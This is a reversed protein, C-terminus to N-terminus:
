SLMAKKCKEIFLELSRPSNQASSHYYIDGYTTRPGSYFSGCKSKAHELPVDLQKCEEPSLGIVERPWLLNVSYGLEEAKYTIEEATDSRPNLHDFSPKGLNNYLEKSLFLLHPGAYPHNKDSNNHSNKHNSQWAGGLVTKHDSVKQYLEGIFDRRLPISDTEMFLWYDVGDKFRDVIIDLAGGHSIGPFPCEVYNMPIDFHKFIKRNWELYEPFRNGGFPVIPLIREGGIEITNM